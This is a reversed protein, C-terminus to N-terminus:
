GLQMNKGFIGHTMLLVDSIISILCFIVLNLDYCLACNNV